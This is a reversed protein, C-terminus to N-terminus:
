VILHALTFQKKTHLQSFRFLDNYQIIDHQIKGWDTGTHHGGPDNRHHDNVTPVRLEDGADVGDDLGGQEQEDQDYGLDLEEASSMM